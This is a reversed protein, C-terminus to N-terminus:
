MRGSGECVGEKRKECPLEEGSYQGKQNRPNGQLMAGIEWSM